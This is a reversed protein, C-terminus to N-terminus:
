NEHHFGTPPLSFRSFVAMTKFLRGMQQPHILRAYSAELSARKSPNKHKLIEKRFDLGINKLFSGQPHPGLVHLGRSLAQKKLQSFNVHCSLDAHGLHSLPSVPEGEFLASLSDGSGTEYGYDFFLFVGEQQLLRECIQNMLEISQPSEEWTQDPGQEQRLPQLIFRFDGDELGIRREYVQNEKRIYCNTPLADFFENALIILPFPTVPIDEFKEHWNVRSHLVLKEQIKRLVTNIEILHIDLNQFFPSFQKAVRLFDVMLTGRGPGLEVLSIREPHGLKEYYDFSWAGLLEGFMQSIEPATTFDRGLAEQSRYYGYSPHQLAIEMFRSQSLPGKETIEQKLLSDLM